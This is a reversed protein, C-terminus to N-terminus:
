IKKVRVGLKRAIKRANSSLEAKGSLIMVPKAKLYGAKRAIKRVESAPITRSKNGHKIEAAIRERGRKAILDVEGFRFKRRLKVNYGAREYRRGARNESIKGKRCKPMTM